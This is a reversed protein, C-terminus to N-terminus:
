RWQSQNHFLLTEKFLVKKDRNRLKMYFRFVLFTVMTLGISISIYIWIYGSVVPPAMTGGPAGSSPGSSSSNGNDVPRYRWDRWDNSWQFIPMAFITAMTTLPLYVMAVLSIGTAFKSNETSTLAEQRSLESRIIDTTFSIGEVIVRCRASLGDLRTVIDNFRELFLNTIEAKKMLSEDERLSEDKLEEERQTQLTKLASSCAKSLQLKTAEVEEEVKKSEERNLRVTRITKWSFRDKADNAAESEVDDMLKQYEDYRKNVMTVLRDLQLEAYIGLMLLPHGIADKWTNVLGKIRYIQSDSCSFMVGLTTNKRDFHTGAMAFSNEDFDPNTVATHMWIKERNEFRHTRSISTVSTQKRVALKPFHGPLHFAQVIKEWSESSDEDLPLDTYESPLGEGVPLAKPICLISFGNQPLNDMAFSGNEGQVFNLHEIWDQWRERHELEILQADQDDLKWNQIVKCIQGEDHVQFGYDFLDFNNPAIFPDSDPLWDM